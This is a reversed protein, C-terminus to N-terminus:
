PPPDPDLDLVSHSFVSGRDTGPQNFGLNNVQIPSPSSSAESLTWSDAGWSDGSTGGNGNVLNVALYFVVDGSGTTPATWDVSWSRSNSNSHTVEGSSLRANQGPNSFVGQNSDLNFGGSTGSARWFRKNLPFINGPVYGSSPTGSLAPIVTPSTSSHCIWGWMWRYLRDKGLQERVSNRTCGNAFADSLDGIIVRTKM